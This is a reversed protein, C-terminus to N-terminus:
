LAWSQWTPLSGTRPFARQCRSPRTPSHLRTRGSQGLQEEPTRLPPHQRRRSHPRRPHPNWRNTPLPDRTPSDRQTPQRDSHSATASSTSRRPVCLPQATRIGSRPFSPSAPGPRSTSDCRRARNPTRSHLSQRSTVSHSSVLPRNRATSQRTKPCKREPVRWARTTRVSQCLIADLSKRLRRSKEASLPLSQPPNPPIKRFEIPNQM